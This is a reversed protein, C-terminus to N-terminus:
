FHWAILWCPIQLAGSFSMDLLALLLWHYGCEFLVNKLRKRFTSTNTIDHLDSPLTNWAAPGSYFFGREGLRTKQELCFTSWQILRGWSTDTVPQLFQPYVTQCTNHHKDMTSSTCAPLWQNHNLQWHLNCNIATSCHNTARPDTSAAPVVLVEPHHNQCM